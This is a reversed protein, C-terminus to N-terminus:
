AAHKEFVIPVKGTASDHSPPPPDDLYSSLGCVRDYGGRSIAGLAGFPGIAYPPAPNHPLPASCIRVLLLVGDDTLYLPRLAKM